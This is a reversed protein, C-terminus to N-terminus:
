ITLEMLASIINWQVGSELTTFPAYYISLLYKHIFFHHIGMQMQSISGTSIQYRNFISYGLLLYKGLCSLKLSPAYKPYTTSTSFLWLFCCRWKRPQQLKCPCLATLLHLTCLASWTCTSTKTFRLTKLSRKHVWGVIYILSPFNQMYDLNHISFWRMQMLYVM